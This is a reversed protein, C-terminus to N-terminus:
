PTGCAGCKLSMLRARHLERTYRRRKVALARRNWRWGGCYCRDCRPTLAAAAASCHLGATPSSQPAATGLARCFPGVWWSTWWSRQGTLLKVWLERCKSSVRISDYACQQGVSCCQLGSHQASTNLNAHPRHGRWHCILLSCRSKCQQATARSTVHNNARNRAAFSLPVEVAEKGNYHAQVSCSDAAETLSPLYPHGIKWVSM